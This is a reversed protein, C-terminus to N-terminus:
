IHWTRDVSIIMISNNKILKKINITNTMKKLKKQWLADGSDNYALALIIFKLTSAKIYTVENTYQNFGNVLGYWDTFLGNRIIIDGIVPRWKEKNSYQGLAIDM